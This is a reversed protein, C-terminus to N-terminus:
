TSQGVELHEFGCEFWIASRLRVSMVLVLDHVDQLSFHAETAPDEPRAVTGMNGRVRQIGETSSWLAQSEQVETGPGISDEDAFLLQQRKALLASGLRSLLATALALPAPAVGPRVSCAM